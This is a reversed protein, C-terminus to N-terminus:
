EGGEKLISLLEITLMAARYEKDVDKNELVNRLNTGIPSRKSLKRGLEGCIVEEMIVKMVFKRMDEKSM